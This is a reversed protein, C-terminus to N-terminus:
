ESSCGKSFVLVSQRVAILEKVLRGANWESPLSDSNSTYPLSSAQFLSFM